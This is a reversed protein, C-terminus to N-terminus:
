QICRPGGVAPRGRAVGAREAAWRVIQLPTADPSLAGQGSAGLPLPLLATFLVAHRM